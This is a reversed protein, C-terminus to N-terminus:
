CWIVVFHCKRAGKPGTPGPFGINGHYGKNGKPGEPGAVFRLLHFTDISFCFKQFTCSIFPLDLESMLKTSPSALTLVNFSM